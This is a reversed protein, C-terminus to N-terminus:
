HASPEAYLTSELLQISLKSSTTEPSPSWSEPRLRVPLHGLNLCRRCRPSPRTSCSLVRCSKPQIASPFASIL